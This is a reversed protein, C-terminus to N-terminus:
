AARKGDGAPHVTVVLRPTESYVKRATLEVIQSDDRWVIENLGDITKVYNDLDPRKTPLLRRGIADARKAKSLSQPIPLYAVVRVALPGEFPTRGDMVRGAELRLLAEYNRTKSPTFARAHGNVTSLRARGKAVPPGAVSITVAESM